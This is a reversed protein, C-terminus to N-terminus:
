AVRHIAGPIASAMLYDAQSKRLWHSTRTATALKAKM